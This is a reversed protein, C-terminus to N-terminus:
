ILNFRNSEIERTNLFAPVLDKETPDFIEQGWLRQRSKRQPILWKIELPERGEQDLSRSSEGEASTQAIAVLRPLWLKQELNYSLQYFAIKRAPNLTTLMDAQLVPAQWQEDDRAFVRSWAMPLQRYIKSIVFFKPEPHRFLFDPTLQKPFLISRYLLPETHAGQPQFYIDLGLGQSKWTLVFNWPNGNPRIIATDKIYDIEECEVKAFPGRGQPGKGLLFNTSFDECFATWDEGLRRQFAKPIFTEDARFSLTLRDITIPINKTAAKAQLLRCSFLTAITLAMLGIKNRYNQPIILVRIEGVGKTM